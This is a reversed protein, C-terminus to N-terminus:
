AGLDGDCVKVLGVWWGRRKWCAQLEAGCGQLEAEWSQLEAEWRQLEVEWSQLEVGWSQLEAGWSPEAEGVRRGHTHQANHNTRSVSRWQSSQEASPHPSSCSAWNGTDTNRQRLCGWHLFLKVGAACSTQAPQWPINQPWSNLAPSVRRTQAHQWLFKKSRLNSVLSVCSTKLINDRTTKYGLNSVLSGCLKNSHIILCLKTVMCKVCYVCPENSCTIMSIKTVTLKVRPTHSTQLKTVMCQVGSVCLKNSCTVMSM